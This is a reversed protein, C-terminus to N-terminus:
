KSQWPVDKTSDETPDTMIEVISPKGSEFASKVAGVIENPDEVRIGFCGYAEAIRSFNQPGFRVADPLAEGCFQRFSKWEMGLANNNLIVNVIPTGLRVATELEMVNYGFAGDGSISLMRKNPAALQAGMAMPLASGLAPFGRPHLVHNQPTADLFAAGWYSCSGADFTILTDNDIVNQLEKLARSSRIPKQDTVMEPEFDHKWSDMLKRVAGERNKRRESLSGDDYESLFKRIAVIALRADAVIGLDIRLNSGIHQPDIGIQIITSQPSPISWGRTTAGDARTGILLVADAEGVISNAVRGRGNASCDGLVGVSLPHENPFSGHAMHTTAVPIGAQEALAVLEDAARSLMVGGGALIAPNKAELLLKAARAISETDPSLRIRPYMFHDPETDFEFDSEAALLGNPVTVVVPGPDGTTAVELARGIMDPLSNVSEARMYLKSIPSFLAEQDVFRGETKWIKSPDLDNTIAVVANSSHYAEHLGVALHATGIDAATCVGPKGSVRSYGTAMLSGCRENHITAMKIGEAIV